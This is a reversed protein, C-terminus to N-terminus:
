AFKKNQLFQRTMHKNHALVNDGFDVFKGDDVINDGMREPDLSLFAIVLTDDYALVFRSPIIDDMTVFPNLTSKNSPGNNWEQQTM